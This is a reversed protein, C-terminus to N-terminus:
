KDGWLTVGTVLLFSFFWALTYTWQSPDAGGLWAGFIMAHTLVLVAILRIIYRKM